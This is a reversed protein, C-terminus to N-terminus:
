QNILFFFLFMTKKGKFASIIPIRQGLWGAKMIFNEYVSEMKSVYKDRQNQNLPDTAQSYKTILRGPYLSLSVNYSVRSM